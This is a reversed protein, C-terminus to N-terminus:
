DEIAFYNTQVEQNKPNSIDSMVLLVILTFFFVVIATLLNKKMIVFNLNLIQQLCLYNITLFCIQHILHKLQNQKM